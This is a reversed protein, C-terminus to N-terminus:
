WLEGNDNVKLCYVDAGTGSEITTGAVALGNDGACVVRRGSYGTGAISGYTQMWLFEGNQKLSLLLLKSVGENEPITYGTCIINGTADLTMGYVGSSRGISFEKKWVETNGDGTLRAIWIRDRNLTEYAIGCVIIDGNDLEVVDTAYDYTDINYEKSWVHQRMSNIKTIRSDASVLTEYEVFGTFIYGGDKSAIIRTVGDNYQGGFLADFLNGVINGNNDVKMIYVDARGSGASETTAAIIFGTDSGSEIRVIGHGEDWLSGSYIKEWISDGNGDFRAIWINGSNISDAKCGTVVVSGDDLAVVSNASMYWNQAYEKYWLQQGLADVRMLFIGYSGTYDTKGTYVFGCRLTKAMDMTIDHYDSGYVKEWLPRVVFDNVVTNDTVNLKRQVPVIECHEVYPMISYEGVWAQEFRYIGMSDTYTEVTGYEPHQMQVCVGEMGEGCLMVQGEIVLSEAQQTSCGALTIVPICLLLAWIKM